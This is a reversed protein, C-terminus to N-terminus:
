RALYGVIGIKTPLEEYLCVLSFDKSISAFSKRQKELIASEKELLSILHENPQRWVAKAV